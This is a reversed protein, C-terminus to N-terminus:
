SNYNLPFRLVHQTRLFGAGLRQSTIVNPRRSPIYQQRICRSALRKVTSVIRTANSVNQEGHGRTYAARTNRRTGVVNANFGPRRTTARTTCDTEDHRPENRLTKNGIKKASNATVVLIGRRCRSPELVRRGKTQQKETTTSITHSNGANNLSCLMIACRVAVLSNTPELIRRDMLSPPQILDIEHERNPGRM